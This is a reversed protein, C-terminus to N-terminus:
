RLPQRRLTEGEAIADRWEGRIDAAFDDSFVGVGWTGMAVSDVLTSLRQKCFSVFPGGAFTGLM